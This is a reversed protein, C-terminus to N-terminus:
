LYISKYYFMLCYDSFMISLGLNMRLSMSMPVPRLSSVEYRQNNINHAISLIHTLSTSPVAMISEGNM